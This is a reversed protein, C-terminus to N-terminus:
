ENMLAGGGRVWVFWASTDNDMRGLVFGENCVNYHPVFTYLWGTRDLPPEGGARLAADVRMKTEETLAFTVTVYHLRQDYELRLAPPM